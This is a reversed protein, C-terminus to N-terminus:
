ARRARDYFKSPGVDKLLFLTRGASIKSWELEGRRTTGQDDFYVEMNGNPQELAAHINVHLGSELSQFPGKKVRGCAWKVHENEVEFISARELEFCRLAVAILSVQFINRLEFIRSISLAPGMKELFVDRPMLIEAALMDCLREVESGSQGCNRGTKELLAHGLEHAITFRRRSESLHVSYVIKLRKGHRRLEGSFPVDEACFESIHLPEQLAELQTPAVPIGNLLNSVIKRVAEEITPPNGALDFLRRTPLSPRSARKEVRSTV